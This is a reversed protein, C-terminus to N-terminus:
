FQVYGLLHERNRFLPFREKPATPFLIEGNKVRTLMLFLDSVSETPDQCPILLVFIREFVYIAEDSLSVCSGLAEAISTKLVSSPSKAGVFWTKQKSNLQLLNKMMTEKSGRHDVKLKQCLKRIEDIQLLKLLNSVEETAADSFYM